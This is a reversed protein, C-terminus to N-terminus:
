QTKNDVFNLFCNKVSWQRLDLESKELYRFLWLKARSVRLRFIPLWLMKGLPQRNLNLLYYNGSLLYNVCHLHEHFRTKFKQSYDILILINVKWNPKKKVTSCKWILYSFLPVMKTENFLLIFSVILIIELTGIACYMEEFWSFGHLLASSVGVKNSFQLSHLSVNFNVKQLFFPPSFCIFNGCSLFILRGFIVTSNSNCSFSLSWIEFAASVSLLEIALFVGNKMGQDCVLSEFICYSVLLLLFIGLINVFKFISIVQFLSTNVNQNDM